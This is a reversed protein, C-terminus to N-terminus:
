KFWQLIIASAPPICIEMGEVQANYVLGFQRMYVHEYYLFALNTWIMGM